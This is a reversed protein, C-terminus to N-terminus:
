KELECNALKLQENKGLQFTMLLYGDGYVEIIGFKSIPEGQATIIRDRTIRGERPRASLLKSVVSEIRSFNLKKSKEATGLRGIVFIKKDNLLYRGNVGFQSSNEECNNNLEFVNPVQASTILVGGAVFILIVSILGFKKM